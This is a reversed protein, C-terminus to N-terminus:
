HPLDKSRRRSEAGGASATEFGSWAAEFLLSLGTYGLAWL